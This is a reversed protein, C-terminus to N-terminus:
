MVDTVTFLHTLEWDNLADELTAHTTDGWAGDLDFRSAQWKGLERTSGHVIIVHNPDTRSVLKVSRVNGTVEYRIIPAEWEEADDHRHTVLEVRPAKLMSDCMLDYLGKKISHWLGLVCGRSKQKWDKPDESPVKLMEQVASFSLGTRFTDYGALGHRKGYTSGM